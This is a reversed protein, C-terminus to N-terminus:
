FPDNPVATATLYLSMWILSKLRLHSSFIVWLSNIRFGPVFSNNSFFVSFFPKCCPERSCMTMVPQFLLPGSTTTYLMPNTEFTSRHQSSFRWLHVASDRFQFLVMFQAHRHSIPFLIKSTICAISSRYLHLTRRIFLHLSSYSFFSSSTVIYM